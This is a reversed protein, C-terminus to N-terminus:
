EVFDTLVFRIGAALKLCEDDPLDHLGQSLASHLLLLPNQGAVMLAQPLAHKILGVARSFQIEKKAAELEGNLGPDTGVTKAVRIIQDFIENKKHEVVRRYYAFAAIGMSQSEARRGRFYYEKEESGLLDALRRPTPPGFQPLEGLKAISGLADKGGQPFIAHI